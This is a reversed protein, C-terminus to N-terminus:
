ASLTTELTKEIAKELTIGLLSNVTKTDTGLASAITSVGEGQKYLMKAQAATSIKVTDEQSTSAAQTTTTSQTANNATTQTTGYLNATTNFLAISGM